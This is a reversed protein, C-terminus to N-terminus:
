RAIRRHSALPRGSAAARFERWASRIGIEFRASAVSLLLLAGWGCLAFAIISALKSV